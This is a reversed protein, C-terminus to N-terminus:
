APVAPKAARYLSLTGFLTMERHTEAVERFGAEDMRGPLGGRVNDATTRFGDLLQVPLFAVRMLANQARGWDAIHLEGGPRLLEFARRLTRQKDETGLHHFLLSSVIRDFSGPEFPPDFAM